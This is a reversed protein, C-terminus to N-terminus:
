NNNLKSFWMYLRWLEQVKKLELSNIWYKDKVKTYEKYYTLYNMKSIREKLHKYKEYVNLDVQDTVVYKTYLTNWLDYPILFYWNDPWWSNVAIFWLNNYSVICFLHWYSKEKNWYIKQEKVKVWDWNLSGTYILRNNDIANKASEIDWVVSYWSILEKNKAWKLWNQLSSWEYQAQPNEKLYELWWLEPSLQNYTRGYSNYECINMANSIHTIGCCWCSINM